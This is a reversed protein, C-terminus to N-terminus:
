QLSVAPQSAGLSAADRADRALQPLLEREVVDAAVRSAIRAQEAAMEPAM